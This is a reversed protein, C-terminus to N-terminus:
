VMCHLDLPLDAFPAPPSAMAKWDRRCVHTLWRRKCLPCDVGGHTRPTVIALLQCECGGDSGYTVVSKLLRDKKDCCQGSRVQNVV